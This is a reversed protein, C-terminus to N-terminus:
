AAHADLLTRLAPRCRGCASGAGCRSQALAVLDGAGGEIAVQLACKTVARCFCVYADAQRRPRTHFRVDTGAIDSM